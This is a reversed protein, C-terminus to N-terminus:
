STKKCKLYELAELRLAKKLIIEMMLDKPEEYFMEKVKEICMAEADMVEADTFTQQEEEDRIYLNTINYRSFSKILFATLATGKAVLCQGSSSLIDRAVVMGEEVDKIEITKM